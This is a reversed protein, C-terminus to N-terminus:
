RKSCWVPCGWEPSLTGIPADDLTRLVYGHEDRLRRLCLFEPSDETAAHMEFVIEPSHQRILQSAGAVVEGGAGEVDIKLWNPVISSESAINDLSDCEVEISQSWEYNAGSHGALNGRMRHDPDFNFKLRERRRGIAIQRADVNTCHNLRLNRVLMECNAPLPEFTIVKGTSGALKSFLLTLQGCNGGVDLIVDGPHIRSQFFAFGYSDVGLGFAGGMGPQVVFRAGKLPGRIVRRVSGRPYLARVLRQKM